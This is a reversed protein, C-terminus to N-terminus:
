GNFFSKGTSKAKTYADPTIIGYDNTKPVNGIQGRKQVLGHKLHLALYRLADPHDDYKKLPKESPPREDDDKHERYSYLEFQKITQGCNSTFFMNPKPLGDFQEKPKLKSGLLPIGSVVSNHGKRAAVMPFGKSRMIEIAEPDESDAVVLTLKRNGVKQRILDALEDKGIEYGHIEDTVYWNGFNDIEVLNFALPHGEAWGWDVCGYLTNGVSLRVDDPKIMHVKRDFMPYVKGEPSHFKLEYEREHIALEGAKIADEREQKMWEETILPNSRWTAETYFWKPDEQARQLTEFWHGHEGRATGMFAAWGQTTALFPSYVSRWQKGDQSQYEDFIIGNGEGGLDRDATDSGTLRIMSPPLKSDHLIHQAKEMGPLTMEVDMHHFQIVLETGDKDAVFEEPITHLYQRWMVDKAHKQTDFVIWYTGQKYLASLVLQMVMWRSKGARRGWFIVGRKYEEVLFARHAEAQTGFPDYNLVDEIEAM